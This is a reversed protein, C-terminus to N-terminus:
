IEVVLTSIALLSPLITILKSLSRSTFDRSGNIMSNQWIVHFVSVVIDGFDSHRRGGFKVTHYGVNPPDQWYLRM